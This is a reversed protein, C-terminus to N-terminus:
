QRTYTGGLLVSLTFSSSSLFLENGEIRYQLITNINDDLVINNGSVRYENNDSNNVFLRGDATFRITVAPNGPKHWTALLQIADAAPPDDYTPRAAPPTPATYAGSARYSRSNVFVSNGRPADMVRLTPTQTGSEADTDNRAFFSFTQKTEVDNITFSLIENRSRDFSTIIATVPAEGGYYIVTGDAFVEYVLQSEDGAAAAAASSYWKGLMNGPLSEDGGGLSACGAFIISALVIIGFLKLFNKM